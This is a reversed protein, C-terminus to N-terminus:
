MTPSSRRSSAQHRQMPLSPPSCMAALATSLSTRTASPFHNFGNACSLFVGPHGIDFKYQGYGLKNSSSVPMNSNEIVKPPTLLYPKMEVPNLPEMVKYPNILCNYGCPKSSSSARAVPSGACYGCKNNCLGSAGKVALGSTDVETPCWLRYSNDYNPAFSM